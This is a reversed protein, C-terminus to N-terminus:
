RSTDHSMLFVCPVNTSHAGADYKGWYAEVSEAVTGGACWWRHSSDMHGWWWQRPSRAEGRDRIKNSGLCFMIM